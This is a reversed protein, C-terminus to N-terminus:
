DGAVDSEAEPHILEDEVATRLRSHKGAHCADCLTELNDDSNGGGKHVPLRHHIQLRLGVGGKTHCVVCAYSDRELIRFRLKIHERAKPPTQELSTMLYEGPHLEARDLHSDIQWGEEVLERVRRPHEQINAVYRLQEKSLSSGVNERFFALLRARGSGPLRRIRNADQWQQRLLVDPEGAELVYEGPKLDDRTENSSIRWGEEVRLERIRRAWEHIGAVGSLQDKGVVEGLRFQLYQLLRGRAGDPLGVSAAVLLAGVTAPARGRGSRGSSPGQVKGARKSVPGDHRSRHLFGQRPLVQIIVLM